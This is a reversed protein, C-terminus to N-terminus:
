CSWAPLVRLMRGGCGFDLKHLELLLWSALQNVDTTGARDKDDLPVSTEVILAGTAAVTSAHPSSPSAGATPNPAAFAFLVTVHPRDDRRQRLRYPSPCRRRSPVTPPAHIVLTRQVQVDDMTEMCETHQLSARWRDTHSSSRISTSVSPMERERERERYIYITILSMTQLCVRNCV